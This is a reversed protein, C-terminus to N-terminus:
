SFTLQCRALPCRSGVRVHASVTLMSILMYSECLAQWLWLSRPDDLPLGSGILRYDSLLCGKPGWVFTQSAEGGSIGGGERRLEKLFTESGCNM